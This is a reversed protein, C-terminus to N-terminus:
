CVFELGIEVQRREFDAMKNRAIYIIVFENNCNRTPVCIIHINKIIKYQVPMGYQFDFYSCYYLNAIIVVICVLM